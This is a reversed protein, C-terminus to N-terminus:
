RRSRSTGALRPRCWTLTGIRAEKLRPRLPLAIVTDGASRHYAAVMAPLVDENDLMNGQVAVTGSRYVKRLHSVKLAATM